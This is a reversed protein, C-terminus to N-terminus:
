EKKEDKQEKHADENNGELRNFLAINDTVANDLVFQLSFFSFFLFLSTFLVADYSHIYSYVCLFTLLCPTSIIGLVHLYPLIKKM